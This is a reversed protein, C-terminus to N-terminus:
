KSSIQLSKKTVTIPKGGANHRKVHCDHCSAIGCAMCDCKNAAHRNHSWEMGHPNYSPDYTGSNIRRSCRIYMYEPCDEPWEDECRGRSREFLEMRRFTKAKGHLRERKHGLGSRESHIVRPTKRKRRTPTRQIM